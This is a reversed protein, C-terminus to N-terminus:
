EISNKYLLIENDIEDIHSAHSGNTYMYMEKLLLLNNKLHYIESELKNNKIKLDELESYLKNKSISSLLGKDLLNRDNRCISARYDEHRYYRKRTNLKFLPPLIRTVCITQIMDCLAYTEKKALDGINKISEDSLKFISSNVALDHPKKSTLPIVKVGRDDAKVVIAPRRKHMEGQQINDPYRKNTKISADLTVCSFIHGFEVIIIKGLYLISKASKYNKNKLTQSLYIDDSVNRPSLWINIIINNESLTQIKSSKIEWRHEKRGIFSKTIFVPYFNEKDINDRFLPTIIENIGNLIVHGLLIETRYNYFEFYNIRIM